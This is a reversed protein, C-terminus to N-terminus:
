GLEFCTFPWRLVPFATRALNWCATRVMSSPHQERVHFNPFLEGVFVVVQQAIQGRGVAGQEHPNVMLVVFVAVLRPARQAFTQTFLLKFVHGQADHGCGEFRQKVFFALGHWVRGGGFFLCLLGRLFQAAHEVAHQNFVELGLFGFGDFRGLVVRGGQLTVAGQLRATSLEFLGAGAGRLTLISPGKGPLPWPKLTYDLKEALAVAVGGPGALRSM